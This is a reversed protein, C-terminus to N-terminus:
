RGRSRLGDIRYMVGVHDGVDCPVCLRDIAPNSVGRRHLLHQPDEGINVHVGRIRDLESAAVPDGDHGMGGSSFLRGVRPHLM